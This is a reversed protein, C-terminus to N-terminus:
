VIQRKVLVVIRDLFTMISDFMWKEAPIKQM